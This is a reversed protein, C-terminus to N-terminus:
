GGQKISGLFKSNVSELICIKIPSNSLQVGAIGQWFKTSFSLIFVSM